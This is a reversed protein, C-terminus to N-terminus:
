RPYNKNPIELKMRNWNLSNKTRTNLFLCLNKRVCIAMWDHIIERVCSYMDNKDLNIKMDIKDSLIYVANIISNSFNM